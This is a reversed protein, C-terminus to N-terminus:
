VLLAYSGAPAHNSMRTNENSSGSLMRALRKLIEMFRHWMCEFTGMNAIKLMENTYCRGGNAEIMTDIMQLLDSVQEKNNRAKNNMVCYRGGCINIVGNLFTNKKIGSDLKKRDCEDGHTLVIIIHKTVDKGFVKEVRKLMDEEQETFRGYKFILLFAHLAGESLHLSRGFEKALMNEELKTDFFGPTDIVSVERGYIDSRKLSSETTVPNVDNESKFLKSDGLITNGTASKGVGTKGLLM